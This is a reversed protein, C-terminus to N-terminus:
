RDLAALKEALTSLAEYSLGRARALEVLERVMVLHQARLKHGFHVELYYLAEPSFRALAAALARLVFPTAVLPSFPVPQAPRGIRTGIAVGERCARVVVEALANDEALASLSGAVGIGMGLPIACATTAPNAEHVAMELTTPLGADTLARAFARVLEANRRPEDIRTKTPPLWYRVVGDTERTYSVVSPLTALAREGFTERVRAYDRPLMPTLIVLPAESDGILGRLAELDETGIAVLVVDADAPVRTTRLPAELTHRVNGKVREIVLPEQSAARLPRVVFSVSAHGAVALRVGYVAGLAGAGIVAVHV